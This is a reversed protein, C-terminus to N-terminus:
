RKPKYSREVEPPSFCLTEPLPHLYAQIKHILNDHKEPDPFLGTEDLNRILSKKDVYLSVQGGPSIDATIAPISVRVRLHANKENQNDPICNHLFTGKECQQSRDSIMLIPLRARMLQSTTGNKLTDANLVIILKVDHKVIFDPTLRAINFIPIQCLKTLDKAQTGDPATLAVQGPAIPLDMWLGDTMLKRIKTRFTDPDKLWFWSGQGYALIKLYRFFITEFM